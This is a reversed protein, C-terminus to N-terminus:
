RAKRVGGGVAITVAVPALPGTDTLGLPVPEAPRPTTGTLRLGSSPLPFPTASLDSTGGAAAGPLSTTVTRNLPLGPRTDLVSPRM